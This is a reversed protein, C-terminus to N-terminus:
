VEDGCSWKEGSGNMLANQCGIEGKQEDEFLWESEASWVYCDM